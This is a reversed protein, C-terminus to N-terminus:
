EQVGTKTEAAQSLGSFVRSLVKAEEGGSNKAQSRLRNVKCRKVKNQPSFSFMEMCM